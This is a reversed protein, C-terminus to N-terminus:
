PNQPFGQGGSTTVPTPPPPVREIPQLEGPAAAAPNVAGPSSPTPMMNAPVPSLGPQPAAPASTLTAGSPNAPVPGGAGAPAPERPLAALALAAADRVKQKRDYITVRELYVKARPDGIEGLATAAAIRVDVDWDNKLRDVLAAVARPDKLRGLTYCGERRSPAHHSQLRTVAEYVPDVAPVAAAPQPQPPPQVPVVPVAGPVPTLVYGLPPVAYVPQPPPPPPPNNANALANGAFMGVGFSGLGVALPAIWSAPGGGNNIIVERGVFPPPGWGGFRGGPAFGGGGGGRVVSPARQILTNSSFTGGPRKINISRDVFGPGRETTVDRQITRGRPGTITTDRQSEVIQGRAVAGTLAIGLALVM